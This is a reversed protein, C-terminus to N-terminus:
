QIGQFRRQLYTDQQVNTARISNQPQPEQYRTQLSQDQNISNFLYASSILSTSAVFGLILHPIALKSNPDFPGILRQLAVCFVATYTTVLMLERRRRRDEQNNNMKKNLKLININDLEQSVSYISLLTIKYINYIL